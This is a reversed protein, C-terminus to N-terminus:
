LTLPLHWAPIEARKEDQFHAGTKKFFVKSKSIDPFSPSCKRLFPGEQLLM